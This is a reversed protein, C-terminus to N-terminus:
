LVAELYKLLQYSYESSVSTTQCVVPARPDMKWSDSLDWTAIYWEFPSLNHFAHLRCSNCGNSHCLCSRYRWGKFNMPVRRISKCSTKGMLIWRWSDSGSALYRAGVFRWLEWDGLGQNNDELGHNGLWCPIQRTAGPYYHSIVGFSEFFRVTHIQSGTVNLLWKVKIEPLMSYDQLWNSGSEAKTCLWTNWVTHFVSKFYESHSSWATALLCKVCHM